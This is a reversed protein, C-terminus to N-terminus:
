CDAGAGACDGDGAVGVEPGGDASATTTGEDRFRCNSLTISSSSSGYSLHNHQVTTM